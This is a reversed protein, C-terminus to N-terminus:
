KPEKMEKALIGHDKAVAPDALMELAKAIPIRSAGAHVDSPGYSTLYAEEADRQKKMEDIDGVQLPPAKHQERIVQLQAPFHPRDARIVPPLQPGRQDQAEQQREMGGLMVYLVVHGVVAGAILLVSFLIVLRLNADKREYRVETHAPAPEGAEVAHHLDDPM